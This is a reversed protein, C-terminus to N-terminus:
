LKSLVIKESEKEIMVKFYEKLAAYYDAPFLSARLEHNVRLQITNDTASIIFSFEGAEDPLVHASSAPMSEIKYGEPIAIQMM